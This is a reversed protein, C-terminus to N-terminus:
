GHWNRNKAAWMAHDFDAKPVNINIKQKQKKIVERTLRMEDVLKDYNNNVSVKAQFNNLRKNDIDVSSLMSARLMKEYDDHSKYIKDGKELYRLNAGGTSGYSKVNGQKDTHVEPRLEDVYAWGEPADETGKAFKPIPTAIAAALQVAGIAGIAISLPVNPPISTLAATIGRAINLGIGAIAVAKDIVAQKRQEKRKEKELKKNDANRKQDIQRRQTDTLLENELLTDARENNAEIESDIDQIRAQFIAGALDGLSSALESSIDLIEQNTLKENELRNENDSIFKETTLDSIKGKAESLEKEAKLREISGEKSQKILEEIAFVQANLGEVAYKRKIEAIQRERNEVANIEDEYIGEKALFLENERTLEENLAKEQILKQAEADQKIKEVSISDSSNEVNSLLEKRKAQYESLILLKADSLGSEEEETLKNKSLLLNIEEQNYGEISQLKNEANLRALETELAFKDQLAQQRASYFKDENQSIAEQEKILEGLDFSALKFKDKRELELRKKLAENVEEKAKQREKEAKTQEAKAKADERSKSASEATLEAAKKQTVNNLAIIEDLAKLEGKQAGLAVTLDQIQEKNKALETSNGVRSGDKNNRTNFILDNREELKKIEENIEDIRDETREASRIAELDTLGGLEELAKKTEKYRDAAVDKELEKNYQETSLNLLRIGKTIEGLFGIVNKFATSLAGDGSEISLVMADWSDSLDSIKSELSEAAQDAENTLATNNVYEANARSLADELTDYNKALSGVVAETRKENLGLEGLTASLNKGEKDSESLGKVFKRFTEVSDRGFEERFESATQGTLKLIKDLNKGTVAGDNLVKFTKQLAGRSAEAESGLANTAAGLGIVSQASTDYIALGKQIETTNALIQSETTAFNNGLETIVSGLRDANEVSDNSVEIFKAFNRAAEDGVIDSTLKLQELTTSFKLINQSGRIGLQGAIESSNLLGQISIGELDLGLKVVDKSFEKIEEKTLNTTKRVAILQRDFEIITRGADRAVQIALFAGGLVGAASALQRISGIAGKFTKPYNGVNRQFNGAAKDVEFLKTRLQTLEKQFGIAEKSNKGYQVAADKYKRNLLVLRASEKEYATSLSSSILALQRAQKNRQQLEVREQASLKTKRKLASEEKNALTLNKNAIDIEKAKNQLRKNEIAELKLIADREAKLAKATKEQLSVEKTKIELFEKRGKSVKFEKEIGAYELASAKIADFTQLWELNANIAPQLSKAYDQGIDFVKDETLDRRKITM